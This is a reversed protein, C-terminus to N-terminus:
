SKHASIRRNVGELSIPIPGDTTAGALLISHAIARAARRKRPPPEYDLAYRFIPKAGLELLAGVTEPLARAIAFELATEGCRTTADVLDPCLNVIEILIPIRPPEKGLVACHLPLLGASDYKHLAAVCKDKWADVMFVTFYTFLYHRRYWAAVHLPTWGKNEDCIRDLQAGHRLLALVVSTRDEVIATNLPTVGHNVCVPDAGADILHAVMPESCAWFLPAFGDKDPARVTQRRKESDNGCASTIHRVTELDDARVASLLADTEAM